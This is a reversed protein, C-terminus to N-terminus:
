MMRTAMSYSYKLYNVKKGCLIWAQRYMQELPAPANILHGARLFDVGLVM